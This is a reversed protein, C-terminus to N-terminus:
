QIYGTAEAGLQFKKSMVPHREFQGDSYAHGDDSCPNRNEGLPKVRKSALDNKEPCAENWNM